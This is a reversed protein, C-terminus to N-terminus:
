RSHIPSGDPDFPSGQTLFWRLREVVDNANQLDTPDFAVVRDRNEALWRVILEVDLDPGAAPSPGAPASFFHDDLLREIRRLGGGRPGICVRDILRGERILYAWLVSPPAAPELILMSRLRAARGRKPEVQRQVNHSPSRNAIQRAEHLAAELASGTPEYEIRYLSDVLRRVRPSRERGERFYSALRRQLNKSKGVYILEGGRDFFRYTGPTPPVERLFERDFAFRSWDIPDACPGTRLDHLSEGARRLAQLCADLTHAQELPDDVDRFDLDLEEALEVLGHSASLGLRQQGLRRLSIPPDIPERLWAQLAKLSGPQDHIVPVAGDLTELVARRLRRGAPGEAADGGCAALVDDGRMRVASVGRLRFPRRLEGSVLLLARDPDRTDHSRPQPRPAPAASLVWGHRAYELRPDGDFAAELVARATSEDPASTSLLEQALRRSDVPRDRDRLYRVAREAVLSIPRTLSAV